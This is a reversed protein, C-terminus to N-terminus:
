FDVFPLHRHARRRLEQAEALVEHVAKLVAVVRQFAGATRPRAPRAFPPTPLPSASM